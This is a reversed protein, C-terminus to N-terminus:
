KKRLLMHVQSCEKAEDLVSQLNDILPLFHKMWYDRLLRKQTNSKQLTVIVSRYLDTMDLGFWWESLREFGFEDCFYQISEETYLHTHGAVLHRPMVEPFVSEIVVTPSFLPVSFFVYQVKENQALAQFAERPARLHELVGIFSAVERDSDKIFHVIDDLEHKVLTDSGIMDNGFRVLTESAEYGIVNSFGCDQAASVFHGGGAGFDCLRAPFHGVELLADRLFEAKPRYIEDVRNRYQQIDTSTYERAYDKGGNETYLKQCFEETDEHAGNCHGCNPCLAYAIGFKKFCETQGFDISHACNKCAVRFPQSRYLIATKRFEELKIDNSSFFDQKFDLLNGLPKSYRIM